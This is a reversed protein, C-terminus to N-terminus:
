PAPPPPQTEALVEAILKSAYAEMEQQEALSVGRRVHHQAPRNMFQDMCGAPIEDIADLCYGNLSLVHGGKNLAEFHDMDIKHIQYARQRYPRMSEHDCISTHNM